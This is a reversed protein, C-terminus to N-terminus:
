STMAQSSRRNLNANALAVNAQLSEKMSLTPIGPHKERVSGACWPNAMM